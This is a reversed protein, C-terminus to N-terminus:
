SYYLLIKHHPSYLYLMGIANTRLLLYDPTRIKWCTPLLPASPQYDDGSLKLSASNLILAM